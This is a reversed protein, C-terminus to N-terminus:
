PPLTIMLIGHELLLMEKLHENDEMTHITCNNVILINGCVLVKEEMAARVFECLVISNGTEEVVRTCIPSEKKLVVTALLNYHKKSNSNCTLNLTVNNFHNKRVHTYIDMGKIPKQDMCVFQEVEVNGVFM